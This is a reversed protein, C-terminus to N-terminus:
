ELNRGLGFQDANRIPKDAAFDIEMLKESEVPRSQEDALTTVIKKTKTDIVEGTSPYALDGKLTFTVWGPEDRLEISQLQKPPMATADFIHVRKNFSDAVWIEKEDPTLGIGHSPCGHRKVPGTKFGEVEVRHLKKRSVLDAVEFGLLNNVCAFVLTQKANVTFPRVFDAFPGINKVVQHTAADAVTLLPSHLGALYARRGDLGIITNHAGSNPVITALVNGDADIAKWDPGELSPLYIVKGDPSISMRDCGGDYSKEWLIKDTTLDFCTLKKLTSVYLRNTAANACIGKVNMPKGSDDLGAAPIRKVFKHDHDIDFVLIGHGGYQLDDRIGPCAVYLLRRDPSPAAQLAALNLAFLLLLFFFSSIKM